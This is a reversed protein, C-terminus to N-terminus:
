EAIEYILFWKEENTRLHYGLCPSRYLGLPRYDEQREKYRIVRFKYIGNEKLNSVINRDTVRLIIRGKGYKCGLIDLSISDVDCLLLVYSNNSHPDAIIGVSDIVVIKVDIAQHITDGQGYISTSILLTCIFKLIFRFKAM